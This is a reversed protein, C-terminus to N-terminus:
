LLEVNAQTAAHKWMKGNMAPAILVPALTALYIASLSDDAIGHAFRAIANATAPAVM